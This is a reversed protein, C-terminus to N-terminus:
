RSTDRRTFPVFRVPTLARSRVTGDEDKTVLTLWQASFRGGLPIVMRGGPALQRILPPPIQGAAATVIIADFPAHAKWGYYGDGHRTRIVDYGLRKLRRRAQVALPKIIEITYVHPTLESLVAAQYASGTGIELVRSAPTLKLRRTMMAVMHPASITQGHGIPLPMDAYARRADRPQVFEHRPVARMAKYVADDGLDRAALRDVLRDRERQRADFRPPSWRRTAPASAPGSATTTGRRTAAPGGPATGSAGAPRSRPEPRFYILVLAAACVVLAALIWDAANRRRQNGM